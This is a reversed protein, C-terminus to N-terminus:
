IELMDALFQIVNPEHKHSRLLSVFENVTYYGEIIGTDNEPIYITTQEGLMIGGKFKKWDFVLESRFDIMKKLKKLPKRLARAKITLKNV